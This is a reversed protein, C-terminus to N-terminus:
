SKEGILSEFIKRIGDLKLQAKERDIEKISYYIKIKPETGSPRVAIWSSDSLIFKLVNEKPLNDIGENYDLIEETGPIFLKKETRLQTMIEQIREAGDKGKLVFSDLADLYYGYKDYLEELRDLLTIGKDKYISAMECILLASVVADKDRAHTGVLYGYSEEYGIVFENTQSQEFETIKEGIYKFGTLTNLVNLGKSLAIDAGLDNTVVTKILTSNKNTNKHSLVFDVLLAGIQNGTLLEYKGKHKVAVGIRDCDPDTGIVVDAEEEKAQNIALTLADREEPNPSRVTSFNGDPLEQEKVVSVNFKNLAKRVPINGAGHLATYVIKINDIQNVNIAQKNVEKIFATLVEENICNLMGNMNSEEIEATPISGFSDIEEIYRIVQNAENPVLQGGYQNYVKYGNYEKPNHSATIVIGATAQLHRVAFSLVPTPMVEEFIYVKIGKACLVSAAAIAFEKSYNRTDYAIVVSEDEKNLSQIYNALGLTARKVTYQNIRNSGAGIIGRLGGTGFTLDKYFRDEIEKEDDISLLEERTEKDFNLWEQYTDKFSM